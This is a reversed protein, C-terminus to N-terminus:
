IAEVPIWDVIASRPVNTFENFFVDSDKEWRIRFVWEVAHVYIEQGDEPERDKLSIWNEKQKEVKRVEKCFSM